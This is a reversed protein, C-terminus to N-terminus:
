LIRVLAGDVQPTLTSQTMLGVVFIKFRVSTIAEISFIKRSIPTLKSGSVM